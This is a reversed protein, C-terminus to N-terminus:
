ARTKHQRDLRRAIRRFAAVIRKDRKSMSKDLESLKRLDAALRDPETPAPSSGRATM